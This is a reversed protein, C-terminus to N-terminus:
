EHLHENNVLKTSTYSLLSTINSLLDHCVKKITANQVHDTLQTMALEKYGCPNIYSFPALDMDINFAFGHYSCHRKIRFGLSCIKANNIYIGPAKDVTHASLGYGALTQIILQETHRVLHHVNFNKRKLDILLYGVLQGPGHYTVHGGRDSEIIPISSKQLIHERSGNYGLTFVQPHQLLWIEDPTNATRNETFTQMLAKTSQYDVLGLNRVLLHNM